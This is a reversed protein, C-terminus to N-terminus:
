REGDRAEEAEKWGDLHQIANEALYVIQRVFNSSVKFIFADEPRVHEAHRHLTDAHFEAQMAAKGLWELINEITDLLNARQSTELLPDTIKPTETPRDGQVVEAPAAKMQRYIVLMAQEGATMNEGTIEASSDPMPQDIAPQIRGRGLCAPCKEPPWVKGYLKGVGHCEICPTTGDPLLIEVPQASPVAPLQGTSTVRAIITTPGSDCLAQSNQLPDLPESKRGNLWSHEIPAVAPYKGTAPKIWDPLEPVPPAIPMPASLRAALAEGQRVREAQEEQSWLLHKVGPRTDIDPLPGSPFLGKLIGSDGLPNRPWRPLRPHEGTAQLQAPPLPWSSEVREGERIVPRRAIAQPVLDIREKGCTSCFRAGSRLEARCYHCRTIPLFSSTPGYDADTSM